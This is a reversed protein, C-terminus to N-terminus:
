RSESEHLPHTTIPPRPARQSGAVYAKENQLSNCSIRRMTSSRQNIRERTGTYPRRHTTTSNRKKWKNEPHLGRWNPRSDSPRTPLSGLLKLLISPLHLVPFSNFLFHSGVPDLVSRITLQSWSIRHVERGGCDKGSLVFNAESRIPPATCITRPHSL